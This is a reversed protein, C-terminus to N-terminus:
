FRAVFGLSGLGPRVTFTMREGTRRGERRDRAGFVLLPVGAALSVVTLLTGALIMRSGQDYYSDWASTDYLHEMGEIAGLTEHYRGLQTAGGAILGLGAVGLSLMAGGVFMRQTGRRTRKRQAERRARDARREAVATRIAECESRVQSVQGAAIRVVPPAEALLMADEILELVGALQEDSAAAELSTEAAMMYVMPDRTAQAQVTLWRASAQLGHKGAIEAARATIDVRERAAEALAAAEQQELKPPPKRDQHQKKAKSPKAPAAAGTAHTPDSPASQPSATAPLPAAVLAVAAGLGLCQALPLAFM